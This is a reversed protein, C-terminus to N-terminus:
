SLTYGSYGDDHEFTIKGTLLDTVKSLYPEGTEEVKYRQYPIKCEDCDRRHGHIQVAGYVGVYVNDATEPFRHCLETIAEDTIVKEMLRKSIESCKECGRSGCLGFNYRGIAILTDVTKLYELIQEVSINKRHIFERLEEQSWPLEQLQM